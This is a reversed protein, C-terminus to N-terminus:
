VLTRWKQIGSQLFDEEWVRRVEYGLEKARTDYRLDNQKRRTSYRHEPEDLEWLLGGAFADFRHGGKEIQFQPVANGYAQRLAACFAPEYRGMRVWGLTKVREAMLRRSQERRAPHYYDRLSVGAAKLQSNVAWETVSLKEAVQALTLGSAYLRTAEAMDFVKKRPRLVGRLLLRSRITERNVGYSAALKCTDEGALYRSVIEDVPLQKLPM